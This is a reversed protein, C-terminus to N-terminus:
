RAAYDKLFPLWGFKSFVDMVIRILVNLYEHLKSKWFIFCFCVMNRWVESSSTFELILSKCIKLRFCLVGWEIRKVCVVSYVVKLSYFFIARFNCFCVWKYYRHINLVYWSVFPGLFQQWSTHVPLQASGHLGNEAVSSVARCKRVGRERWCPQFYMVM